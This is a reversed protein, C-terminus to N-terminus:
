HAPRPKEWRTNAVDGRRQGLAAMHGRRQQTGPAMHRWQDRRAPGDGTEGPVGQGRDQQPVRLGLVQNSACVMAGQTPHTTVEKM